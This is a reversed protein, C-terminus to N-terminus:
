LVMVVDPHGSLVQYLGDLQERSTARFTCTVSLYKGGSSARMELNKASFDPVFQLVIDLVTQAFCETRLGMVKLPFECPFEFVGDDHPVEVM